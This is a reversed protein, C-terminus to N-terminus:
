WRGSREDRFPPWRRAAWFNDDALARLFAGRTVPSWTTPRLLIEFRRDGARGRLARDALARYLDWPPSRKLALGRSRVGAM